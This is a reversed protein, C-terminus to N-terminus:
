TSPSLRVQFAAEPRVQLVLRLLNSQNESQWVDKQQVSPVSSHVISSQDMGLYTYFHVPSTSLVTKLSNLPVAAHLCPTRPSMKSFLIHSFIFM